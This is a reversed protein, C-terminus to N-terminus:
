VQVGFQVTPRRLGPLSTTQSSVLDVFSGSGSCSYESQALTGFTSPQADLGHWMPMGDLSIRGTALSANRALFGATVRNKSTAEIGRSSTRLCFPWIFAPWFLDSSM